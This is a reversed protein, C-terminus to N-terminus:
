WFPFIHKVAIVNQYILIATSLWSLEHLWETAIFNMVKLDLSWGNEKQNVLV